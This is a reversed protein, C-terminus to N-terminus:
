RRGDQQGIAEVTRPLTDWNATPASKVRTAFEGIWTASFGPKALNVIDTHILTQLKVLAKLSEHLCLYSVVTRSNRQKAPTFSM